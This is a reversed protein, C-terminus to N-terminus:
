SGEEFPLFPPLSALRRWDQLVLLGLSDELGGGGPLLPKFHPDGGSSGLGALVGTHSWGDVKVLDLGFHQWM